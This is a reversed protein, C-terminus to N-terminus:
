EDKRVMGVSTNVESPILSIIGNDFQYSAKSISSHGDVEWMDGGLLLLLQLVTM